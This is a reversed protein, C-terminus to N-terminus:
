CRDPDKAIRWASSCGWPQKKKARVAVGVRGDDRERLEVVRWLSDMRVRAWTASERLVQDRDAVFTRGAAKELANERTQEVVSSAM